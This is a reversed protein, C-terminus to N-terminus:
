ARLRKTGIYRFCTGIDIAWPLFGRYEVLVLGAWALAISQPSPLGRALIEKQILGEAPSNATPPRRRSVPVPLLQTSEVHARPWAMPVALGGGGWAGVPLGPACAAWRCCRLAPHACLGLDRRLRALAPAQAVAAPLIPMLSCYNRSFRNMTDDYAHLLTYYPSILLRPYHEM